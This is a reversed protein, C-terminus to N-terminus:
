TAKPKASAEASNVMGLGFMQCFAELDRRHDGYFVVQHFGAVDRVDEVRDMAIEFNTRCGGAPPTQVNAVVTGTDVIVETPKQFRVLTVKQDKRWLVQPSVGLSSESHSRLIFPERSKGLGDLCTGSTCHAVILYNKVTEPVPDNMFGPKDVLYSSLMLSLAGHVDAECGYTVGADQFFSAAMCPPTPVVKSSVMGLCDSTIANCGENELLRKATIYSRAANLADQKTPEVIKEADKMMSDAVSKVEETEPMQNFLEHLSDRPIYKVQTGLRDVVSEKRENGAVVLLKTNEFQKKARIMRFAQEIGSMELSSVVHVGTRRSIELVHGTFGVGIPAFLITPIGAKSIKDAWGWIGMHQLTLVVADPKEGQIESIFAAVGEESEIPEEKLSVEVEAEKASEAFGQAFAKRREELDYSTGPWGLWYPPKQRVIAGRIKVSPRPRFKGLEIYDGLNGEAGWAKRGLLATAATATTAAALFCRRSMLCGCCKSGHSHTAESIM